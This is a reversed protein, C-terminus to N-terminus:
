RVGGVMSWSLARPPTLTQATASKDPPCNVCVSDGSKLYKPSHLSNSISLRIQCLGIRQFDNNKRFM